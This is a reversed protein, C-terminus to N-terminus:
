SGTVGAAVAARDCRAQEARMKIDPTREIMRERQKNLYPTFRSLEGGRTSPGRADHPCTADPVEHWSVLLGNMSELNERTQQIENAELIRFLSYVLAMPRYPAFFDGAEVAALRKIVASRLGATDAAFGGRDHIQTWWELKWGPLPGDKVKRNCEFDLVILRVEERTLGSILLVPRERARNQWLSYLPTGNSALRYWTKTFNNADYAQEDPRVGEAALEHGPGQEIRAMYTNAGEAGHLATFLAKAHGGLTAGVAHRFFNCCHNYFTAPRMTIAAFLGLGSVMMKSVVGHRGEETPAFGLAGHSLHLWFSKCSSMHCGHEDGWRNMCGCAILTALDGVRLEAMAILVFRELGGAPLRLADALREVLCATATSNNLRQIVQKIGGAQEILKTVYYAAETATEEEQADPEADEEDSRPACDEPVGLEEVGPGHAERDFRKANLRVLCLAEPDKALGM